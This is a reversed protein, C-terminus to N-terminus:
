LQSQDRCCTDRVQMCLFSSTIIILPGLTNWMPSHYPTHLTYLRIRYHVTTTHMVLLRVTVGAQHQVLHLVDEASGAGVEEWCPTSQM